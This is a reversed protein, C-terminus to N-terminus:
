LQRGRRDRDALKQRGLGNGDTLVCDSNGDIEEQHEIKQKKEHAVARFQEVGQDPCQRETVVAFPV